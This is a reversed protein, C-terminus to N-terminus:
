EHGGRGNHATRNKTRRKTDVPAGLRPLTVVRPHETSEALAREMRHKVTDYDDGPQELFLGAPERTVM